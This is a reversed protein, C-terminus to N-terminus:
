RLLHLPHNLDAPRASGVGERTPNSTPRPPKASTSRDSSIPFKSLGAEKLFDIVPRRANPRWLPCGGRVQHNRRVPELETSGVAFVPREHTSAAGAAISGCQGVALLRAGPRPDGDRRPTRTTPTSTSTWRPRSAPIAFSTQALKPKAGLSILLTGCGHRLVGFVAPNAAVIEAARAAKRRRGPLRCRAVSVSALAAAPCAREWCARNGLRGLGHLERIIASASLATNVVRERRRASSPVSTKSTRKLRGSVTAWRGRAVRSRRLAYACMM